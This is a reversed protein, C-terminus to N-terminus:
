NLTTATPSRIPKGERFAELHRRLEDLHERMSEDGNAARLAESQIEIAEDFRGAEALAVALTDLYSAPRDHLLDLAAEATQVAIEGNRLDDRPLTALAWAYNNLNAAFSPCAEAGERLTTVLAAFDGKLKWLRNLETLSREECPNIALIRQYTEIADAYAGRAAHTEALRSLVYTSNPNEAALPLLAALAEDYRENEINVLTRTIARLTEIQSVPDAGEVDLSAVEDFDSPTVENSVYGLAQLQAQTEPDITTTSDSPKAPANQLLEELRNRLRLVIEPQEAAVNQLERPDAEIDYLEPNVKHIYKWRGERVFRIPSLGFFSASEFSEGYGLLSMDATQDTLLPAVSVGQMDNPASLGLLDLATPMIDVTRVIGAHSSGRQINELGWFVLPVRMTTDYVYYSHTEEEHEDLGEGHDATLVVLTDDRLGLREIEDLVRGVYEDQAAIAAHYHSEPFRAWHAKPVVYPQHADFYHLWLFFKRERNSRIFEIGKATIDAGTRIPKAVTRGSGKLTVQKLEVGPHAPGRYSEFGQDIGTERRLVDVAIEAGTRYGRGQMIEALMITRDSLVYGANSRVGHVYPYQGSFITSHSPLTMPSSTLANTFVAGSRAMRDIAPSTPKIQGYVGLADARTTDLTIVVLNPAGRRTSPEIAITGRSPDSGGDSADGCGTTALGLSVLLGPAIRTIRAFWGRGSAPKPKWASQFFPRNPCLV